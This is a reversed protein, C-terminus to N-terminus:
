YYIRTMQKNLNQSPRDPDFFFAVATLRKLIM